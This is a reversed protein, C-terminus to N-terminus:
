QASNFTNYNSSSEAKTASLPGSESYNCSILGMEHLNLISDAIIRATKKQYGGSTVMVVPISKNRAEQFVIQDREIIGKSTISLNGLPDGELVDTGANYIIIDPSFEDLAEPIHKKILSLYEEDKTYHNLEINRRIARRARMAGPYIYANYVDMIYVCQDNMFDLEHGNGQHADLDIIMAKKISEVNQFLFKIALTIDAYACFGGGSSSSCHHFGGGINIAWGREVALRAALITGGTQLRLPKLLKHQVVINPLFAVPPVECIQAVVVSWKLSDLYKKTHVVMLDETTPERPEVTQQNEEVNILKGEKLFEFVRGWKGSDFPHLKELGLFGINYSPSYVIPWQSANIEVYLHTGVVKESGSASRDAKKLKKRVSM